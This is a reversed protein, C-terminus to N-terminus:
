RRPTWVDTIPTAAAAQGTPPLHYMAELTRLLRVHDVPESYRGPVVMPGALLLPVRNGGEGSEDWTVVLLSHHTATWRVYPDLRTALWADGTGVGCNHMDDCVDPVVMAVTPLRAGDRPFAAFPQNAPVPVTTFDVWPNHTRTYRGAACGTYGPAPLGEAYGTFTLHADALRTALNPGSLPYPCGDGRVGQTSGSFLALYNPQSPHTVATADAFLAARAALGNLYPADPNGLIQDPGKNELVVVVVHDPHPVAGRPTSPVGRPAPSPAPACAPALVAAM